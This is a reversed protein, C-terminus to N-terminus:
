AACIAPPINISNAALHQQRHSGVGKHAYADAPVVEALHLSKLKSSLHNLDQFDPSTVDSRPSSRPSTTRSSRRSSRFSTIRRWLTPSRSSTSMSSSVSSIDSTIPSRSKTSSTKGPTITKISRGNRRMRVAHCSLHKGYYRRSRM